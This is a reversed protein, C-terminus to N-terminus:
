EKGDPMRKSAALTGSRNQDNASGQTSGAGGVSGFAISLAIAVAGIRSTTM